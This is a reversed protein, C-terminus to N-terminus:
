KGFSPNHKKAALAIVRVWESAELFSNEDAKLMFGRDPTYVDFRSEDKDKKDLAKEWKQVAAIVQKTDHTDLEIKARLRVDSEPEKLLDLLAKIPQGDIKKM